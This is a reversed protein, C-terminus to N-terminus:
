APIYTPISLQALQKSCVWSTMSSTVLDILLDFILITMYQETNITCCPFIYQWLRQSVPCRELASLHRNRNKNWLGDFILATRPFKWLGHRACPLKLKVESIFLLHCITYFSVMKVVIVNDTVDCRSNFYRGRYEHKLSSSEIHRLFYSKELDCTMNWLWLPVLHGQYKLPRLETMISITSQGRDAMPTASRSEPQYWGEKRHVPRYWTPIKSYTHIFM